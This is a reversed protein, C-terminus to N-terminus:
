KGKKKAISLEFCQDEKDLTDILKEGSYIFWKNVWKNWDNGVRIPLLIADLTDGVKYDKIPKTLKIKYNLLPEPILKTPAPEKATM